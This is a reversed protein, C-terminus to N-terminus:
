CWGYLSKHNHDSESDKNIEGSSVEVHSGYSGKDKLWTFYEEQNISDGGEELGAPPVM